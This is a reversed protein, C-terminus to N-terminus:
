GQLQDNTQIEQTSFLALFTLCVWDAAVFSGNGVPPLPAAFRLDGVPPQAYPIGLFEITNRVNPADHGTIAGNTTVVDYATSPTATTRSSFLALALTCAQFIQGM